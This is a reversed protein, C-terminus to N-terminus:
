RASPPQRGIAVTTDSPKLVLTNNVTNIIRRVHNQPGVIRPVLYRAGPIPDFGVRFIRKHNKVARTWYVKSPFIIIIFLSFRRGGYNLLTQM